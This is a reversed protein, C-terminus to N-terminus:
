AHSCMKFLVFTSFVQIIIETLFADNLRGIFQTTLLILQGKLVQPKDRLSLNVM